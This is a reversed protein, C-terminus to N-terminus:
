NKCINIKKITFAGRRSNIDTLYYVECENVLIPKKKLAPTSTIQKGGIVIQNNEVKCTTTDFSIIAIKTNVVENGNRGIANYVLMDNEVNFDYIMFYKKQDLVYTTADKQPVSFMDLHLPLLLFFALGIYKYNIRKKFSLYFILALIITLWLRSFRFFIPLAELSSITLNCVLFLLMLFLVKRSLPMKSSVMYFAPIIWLIQAYTATRSQILFLTVVWISLVKFLKDKHSFSLSIAIGVVVSKFIWKLAYYWRANDFVADPNYYSDKVFLTKLFVDISQANYQFNVTSKNKIANPIVDFIYAEWISTGSAMLSILLLTIGIFLVILLTKWEKKFLLPFGYAVPFIKLLAATVLLSGGLVKRHKEFLVYSFVVLAFVLFYTQGFLVQNRLPVFCIIPIAVVLWKVKKGYRRTLYYISLLFLLSSIVTYIAKALYADEIMSFPYFFTANFPSNLYFDALVKEYGLDWIYKNFAYIDFLTEGPKNDNTAIHAPFYSNSFDHLPFGLSKLFFYVLILGLPTLYVLTQKKQKLFHKM